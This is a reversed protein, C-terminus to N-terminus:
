RATEENNQFVDRQLQRVLEQESKPLYRDGGAQEFGTVIELGQEFKQRGVSEVLIREFCKISEDLENKLLPV